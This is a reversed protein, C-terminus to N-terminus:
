LLKMQKRSHVPTFPWESGLSWEGLEIAKGEGQRRPFTASLMENQPVAMKVRQQWRSGM